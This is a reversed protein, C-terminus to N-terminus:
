RFRIRALLSARWEALRSSQVGVIQVEAEEGLERQVQVALRRAEAAYWPRTGKSWGREYHFHTEWYDEWAQLARRLEASLMPWDEPGTGGEEDWLPWGTYDSMLRVRKSM